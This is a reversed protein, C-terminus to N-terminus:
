DKLRVKYNGRQEDYELVLLGASEAEEMLDAFSNFGFHREHFGPDVRRLTQKVLSGWLPDYDAELSAVVQMLRDVAEEGKDEEKQKQPSKRRTQTRTKAAARGKQAKQSAEALNDYYFFEDCHRVLLDSTSNRVGCGLVRKDNEKLKAALPSFDSDGTLLAFTDIHQKSYCLDIADVVMRIDASNKGSTRTQPIDILEIGHMHLQRVAGEYNSWDCYARKFVIRGKELVRNLILDIQFKGPSHDRVGLALNEYDVFVAILSEDAM